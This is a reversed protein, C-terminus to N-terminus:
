YNEFGKAFSPDKKVLEKFTLDVTRTRGTLEPLVFKGKHENLTSSILAAMKRLQIKRPFKDWKEFFKTYYYDFTKKAEEPYKLITSDKGLPSDARELMDQWTIIM